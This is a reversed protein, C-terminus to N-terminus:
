CLYHGAYTGLKLQSLRSLKCNEMFFLRQLRTTPRVIHVFRQPITERTWDAETVDSIDFDDDHIRRVNDIGITVTLCDRNYLLWWLRCFLRRTPPNLDLLVTNKHLGMVTAIRVANSLWYRYDKDLAFSFHLLSLAISGQLLRLQSTEAGLDCLLQAKDFFSKQASFHDQYGAENILELPAYSVMSALICQTLFASYTGRQYDELFDIKNIIPIYPYVCDFFIRLM